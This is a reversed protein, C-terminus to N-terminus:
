PVKVKFMWVLSWPGGVDTEDYARVRWYYRGNVLTNATFAVPVEGALVTAKQVKTEFLNSTSIQIKYYAANEVPAWTFVPTHTGTFVWGTTPSLLTPATLQDMSKFRWTPSWAQWVGGIKAKIRWYYLKNYELKTPYFYESATTTITFIPTTFGSSTSLQVKYNTAGAVDEWNFTVKATTMKRTFNKKIQDAQVDTLSISYPM